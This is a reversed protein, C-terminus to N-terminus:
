PKLCETKIKFIIQFDLNEKAVLDSLPLNVESLCDEKELRSKFAVLDDRTSAKGAVTISYEKSSVSELSINNDVNKNLILFLNSWQLQGKQIKEAEALFANANKVGAELKKLKDVGSASSVTVITNEVNLKLIYSISVLILLFILFIGSLELEWRLAKQLSYNRTIKAKRSPSILNLNLM